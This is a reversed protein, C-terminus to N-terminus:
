LMFDPPKYLKPPQERSQKPSLYLRCCAKVSKIVQVVKVERAQFFKTSREAQALVRLCALTSNCSLLVSCAVESGLKPVLEAVLEALQPKRRVLGVMHKEIAVATHAVKRKNDEDSLFSSLPDKLHDLCATWQADTPKGDGTTAALFDDLAQSINNKKIEWADNSIKAAATKQVDAVKAVLKADRVHTLLKMCCQSVHEAKSSDSWDQLRALLAAEMKQTAGPRLSAQWTPLGDVCEMVLSPDVDNVALLTTLEEVRPALTLSAVDCRRLEQELKVYHPNQSIAQRLIFKAGKRAQSLSNLAAVADQSPLPMLLAELARVASQIERVAQTMVDSLVPPDRSPEVLDLLQTCKTLLFATAKKADDVRSEGQGVLSVALINIALTRMCKAKEVEDLGCQRLKPRAANFTEEQGDEPLQVRMFDWMQDLSLPKEECFVARHLKRLRFM